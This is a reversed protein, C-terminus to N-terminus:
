VCFPRISSLFFQSQSQSKRMMSFLFCFGAPLALEALFYRM